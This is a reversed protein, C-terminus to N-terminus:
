VQRLREGLCDDRIVYLKYAKIETQVFCYLIVTQQRHVLVM